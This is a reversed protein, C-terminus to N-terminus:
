KILCKNKINMHEYKSFDGYNKYLHLLDPHLYFLLFPNATVAITMKIIGHEVDGEM